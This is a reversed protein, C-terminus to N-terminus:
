RRQRDDELGKTILYGAAEDQTMGLKKAYVRLDQHLGTPITVVIQRNKENGQWFKEMLLKVPIEPERRKARLIQEREPGTVTALADALDAAELDDLNGADDTMADQAKLAIAMSVEGADVKQQLAVHLRDYKLHKLVRAYPIGTEEAVARASGYRKYLVACADIIDKAELDRRIINETLSLAKATEKDVPEDIVASLIAKRGLRQHALLRRQGTIVEYRGSGSGSNYVLIPELLGHTRISVVLEDIDEDVRRIRVQSEGIVLDDIPIERIEIIKAM